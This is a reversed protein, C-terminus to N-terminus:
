GKENLNIKDLGKSFTFDCSFYYMIYQDVLFKSTMFEYYQYIMWYYKLIVGEYGVQTDYIPPCTLMSNRIM